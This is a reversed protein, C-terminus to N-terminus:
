MCQIETASQQSQYLYLGSCNMQMNGQYTGTWRQTSSPNCNVQMISNPCLQTLSVSAGYGYSANATGPTCAYYVGSCVQSSYQGGYSNGTQCLNMQTYTKSITDYCQGNMYQYRTSTSCLAPQVQMNNRTDFCVGNAYVYQSTTPNNGGGSNSCNALMLTMATLAIMKMVKTIQTKM